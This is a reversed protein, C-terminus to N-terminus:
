KRSNGKFKTPDLGIESIQQFYTPGAAIFRNSIDLKEESKNLFIHLPFGYKDDVQQELSLGDTKVEVYYMMKDKNSKSLRNFINAAFEQMGYYATDFHPDLDSFYHGKGYHTHALGDKTSPWIEKSAKIGDHGTKDTYHYYSQLQVVELNQNKSALEQFQTTQEPQQSNNAMEQFASLQRMQPSNDMMEQLKRQAIAESGNDVYQFAKKGMVDAEKELGADDNVNVGVKLQMTPKVRGQKQQVVHWAEHPLHKEQGPAVHIDTGQAYAHAQLQSPKDSNYHVKVDDMSYGSLNEIGSKLRDPLGTKNATETEKAQIPALSTEENRNGISESVQEKAIAGGRYSPPRRATLKPQMAVGGLNHSP